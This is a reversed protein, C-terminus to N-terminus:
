RLISVVLPPTTSTSSLKQAGEVETMQSKSEVGYQNARESSLVNEASPIVDDMSVFLASRVGSLQQTIGGHGSLMETASQLDQQSSFNMKSLTEAVSSISDANYMVKVEGEESASSSGAEAHFISHSSSQQPSHSTQSTMVQQESGDAVNGENWQNLQGLLLSYEEQLSDLVDSDTENQAQYTIDNLQSFIGLVGDLEDAAEQSKSVDRESHRLKDNVKHQKDLRSALKMSASQQESATDSRNVAHSATVTAVRHVVPSIAAPKQPMDSHVPVAAPNNPTIIAM